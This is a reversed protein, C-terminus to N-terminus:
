CGGGRGGWEWGGVWWNFTDTLSLQAGDGHEEVVKLLLDAMGALKEALQQALCLLITKGQARPQGVKFFHRVQSAPGALHPPDHLCRHRLTM